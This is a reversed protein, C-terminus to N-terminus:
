KIPSNKKKINEIELDKTYEQTLITFNKEYRYFNIKQLTTM